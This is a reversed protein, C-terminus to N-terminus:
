LEIISVIISGAPLFKQLGKETALYRLFYGGLELM